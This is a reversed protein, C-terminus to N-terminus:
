LHLRGSLYEEVISRLKKFKDSSEYSGDEFIQKALGQVEKLTDMDKYFNAIKMESIGHQKTGFFDGPGRIKLDLESIKFGDNTSVMAKMREKTTKSKADSVLICYSKHEGRGVRGRLQHLQSLGFRDANEILMITANPVNIGVEIVTTAVIIKVQGDKFEQMIRQKEKPKIKGHLCEIKYDGLHGKKLEETYNIVSKLDSNETEEITPCIIYVQRGTDIEKKMFAFIREKYSSNVSVTDIKQRGPPLEDIISIDLDGYLILALTRPIPTASMVLVNPKEGKEVLKSRQKVGFRHQEDTIVLGLNKVVVNEEIIAHTGVIMNAQGDAIKDKADEKERKKLSGTLAVTNIGLDDFVSKFSTYHQMALVETPAMIISQYGSKIAMYCALMAVATKGSGVDGQILRYMVSGSLFDKEIDKLVNEQANTLKFPLSNLMDRVDTKKVSVETQEKKFVGKMTFLSLQVILLEEFVVRKRARFFAETSEPFHINNIAYKRDCLDHKTKIDKPLFDEFEDQINDLVDKIYKRIMKQSLNETIRYVPVIRGSSLLKDSYAEYDPSEMRLKNYKQIVKGSFIFEQNCLSNKLYPQNYWVVEIIGTDDRIKLRVINLSGINSSEGKGDVKGRINVIEDAECDRIKKIASRDEYNRPFYEILDKITDIGLTKFTKARQEGVNNLSRISEEINM